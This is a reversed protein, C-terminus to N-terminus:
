HRPLEIVCVCVRVRRHVYYHQLCAPLCLWVPRCISVLASHTLDRVSRGSSQAHRAAAHCTNIATTTRSRRLRRRRSSLSASISVRACRYIAKTPAEAEDVGLMQSLQQNDDRRQNDRAHTRTHSHAEATAQCGSTMATRVCKHHQVAM